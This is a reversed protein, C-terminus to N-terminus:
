VRSNLGKTIMDNIDKEYDPNRERLEKDFKVIMKSNAHPHHCLRIIIEMYYDFEPHARVGLKPHIEGHYKIILDLAEELQAVSSKKNKIIKRLSEFDHPLKPQKGHIEEDARDYILELDATEPTQRIIFFVVIVLVILFGFISVIAYVISM